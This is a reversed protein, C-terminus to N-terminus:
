ICCLLGMSTCMRTCITKQVSLLHSMQNEEFNATFFQTTKTIMAKM